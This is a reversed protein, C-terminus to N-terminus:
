QEDGKWLLVFYYVLLGTAAIGSIGTLVIM